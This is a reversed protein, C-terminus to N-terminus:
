IKVNTLSMDDFSICDPWDIESLPRFLPLSQKQAQRLSANM